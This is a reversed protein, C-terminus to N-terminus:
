GPASEQGLVKEIADHSRVRSVNAHVHAFREALEDQPEYWTVLMALYIDAVSMSQGTLYPGAGSLANDVVGLARDVRGRTAAQIGSVAAADTTCREPYFGQLMYEQLTNTLFVLWQLFGPRETADVAPALKAEPHRDVLYFCIAASEFMPEGDILLTPVRGYPNVALYEPDREPGSFDVETFTYDIEAFEFVCQPAM